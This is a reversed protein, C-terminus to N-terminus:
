CENITCANGVARVAKEHGIRAAVEAYTMTSGLPIRRVARWVKQQFETGRLDLAFDIDRTPFAIYELVERVLAEQAGEDLVLKSGQFRRELDDVVHVRNAGILVAVVGKVSSAVLVTGLDSVGTAYLLTEGNPKPKRKGASMTM